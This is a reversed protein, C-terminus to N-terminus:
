SILNSLQTTISSVCCLLRHVSSLAKPFVLLFISSLVKDYQLCQLTDTVAASTLRQREKAILEGIPSVVSVIVSVRVFNSTDSAANM